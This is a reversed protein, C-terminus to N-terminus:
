ATEDFINGIEDGTDADVVQGDSYIEVNHNPRMGSSAKLDHLIGALRWVPISFQDSVHRM